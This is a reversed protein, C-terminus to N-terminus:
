PRIEVQSIITQFNGKNDFASFTMRYNVNIANQPINVSYGGSGFDYSTDNTGELVVEEDAV